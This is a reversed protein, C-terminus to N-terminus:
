EWSRKPNEDFCGDVDGGGRGYSMHMEDLGGGEAVGEEVKVRLLGLPRAPRNRGDGGIDRRGERGNMRRTLYSIDTEIGDDHGCSMTHEMM